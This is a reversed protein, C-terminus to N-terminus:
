PTDSPRGRKRPQRARLVVQPGATTGSRPAASKAPPRASSMATIPRVEFIKLIETIHADTFCYAPGIQVYPIRRERAMRTLWSAKCAGGIIAAAQKASYTMAQPAPTDATTEETAVPPLVEYMTIIAALHSSTFHPSGGVETYPVQKRQAQEELWAPECALIETAQDITYARM